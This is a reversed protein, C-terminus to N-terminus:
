ERWYEPRPEGEFKFQAEQLRMLAEDIMKRWAEDSDYLLIIFNFVNKVIEQNRTGDKEPSEIHSLMDNRIEVLRRSNYCELDNPNVGPTPLRAMINLGQKIVDKLEIHLLRSLINEKESLCRRLEIM